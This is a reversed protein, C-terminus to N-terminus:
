SIYTRPCLKGPIPAKSGREMGPERISESACHTDHIHYCRRTFSSPDEAISGQNPFCTERELFADDAVYTTVDPAEPLGADIVPAGMFHYVPLTKM